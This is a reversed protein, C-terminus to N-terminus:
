ASRDRGPRPSAGDVAPQTGLEADPQEIFHLGRMQSTGPHIICHRGLPGHADLGQVSMGLVDQYFRVDLDRTVPTVHHVGGWPPGAQVQDHIEPM